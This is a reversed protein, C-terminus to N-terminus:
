GKLLQIEDAQITQRTRFIALILSLGV